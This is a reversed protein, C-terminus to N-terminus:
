HTAKPPPPPLEVAPYKESSALALWAADGYVGAKSYDFPKFGLRLAPSDPKLHFDLQDANIFLPDAVVSEADKGTKQWTGFDKGSFQIPAGATNFYLNHDLEIKPDDWKGNQLPGEKWIVINHDFSFPRFNEVRTRQIQATRSFAFINNRIVNDKGYHQHFGGSKTRYVLNNEMTVGTSGEDTYLGWGGYSFAEIDHVVNNSVTTGPSTGLTYVAGMDSLMAWGIHHIHNFDITNRAALSKSYGWTWGASVGSYFLDAIENHTIQNDSSQGIWVGVACPFISGGHRIICNDVVNHGTRDAENAQIGTEGIRVGGAGFDQILCHRVSCDHCGRRFWITYTGLHAFECNEFAINQAGDAMVAAEIKAAAQMPEVGDPPTIWQAHHFSLGKFSIHSVWKGSASDGKLVIFSAAVPAVIRASAIEEGPRPKYTLMGDHALYWEGPVDLATRVNEFIFGTSIDLKNWAKMGSGSLFVKGAPADIADIFKRTNDWKHYAVANVTKLEQDTLSSLLAIDEPKFFITQRAKKAVRAGKELIEEEVKLPYLFFRNPFHARSARQGNVWLQEFSWKGSEVEAIKLTWLGDANVKWGTLIRGGSFVPATAGEAEFIVPADVAGSDQPEFSLPESFSYDGSSVIVKVPAALPESNRLKRLTDRAGTLSALPGDSKEPNTTATLGTGPMMVM